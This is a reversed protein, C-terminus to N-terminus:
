GCIKEEPLKISHQAKYILAQIFLNRLKEPPYEKNKRYGGLPKFWRSITTQHPKVGYGHLMELVEFGKFNRSAKGLIEEVKQYCDLIGEVGIASRPIQERISAFLQVNKPCIELKHHELIKKVRYWHSDSVRGMAIEYALRARSIQETM